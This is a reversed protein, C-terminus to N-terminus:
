TGQLVGSQNVELEAIEREARAGVGAFRPRAPPTGHNAVLVQQFTLDHFGFSIAMGEARRRLVGGQPIRDIIEMAAACEIMAEAVQRPFARMKAASQVEARAWEVGDADGVRASALAYTGLTAIAWGRRRTSDLLLTAIKKAEAPRGSLLLTHALDSLATLAIEGRGDAKNYATWLHGVAVGYKGQLGASIGLGKHGSALLKRLGARKAVRVVVESNQRMAVWNGRVQAAGALQDHALAILEDSQTGVAHRRLENMQEAALDWLGQRGSNRARDALLKGREVADVAMAAASELLHQGLRVWGKTDTRQVLCRIVGIPGRAPHDDYTCGEELAAEGLSKAALTMAHDLIRARTPDTAPISLHQRLLTAVLIAAEDEIDPAAGGAPVDARFAQLASQGLLTREAKV